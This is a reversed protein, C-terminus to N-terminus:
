SREANGRGVDLRAGRLVDRLHDVDDATQFLASQGIGGLAIDVIGYRSKGAVSPKGPLADVVQLGARADLDAFM